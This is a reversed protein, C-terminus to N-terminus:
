LMHGSDEEEEEERKEHSKRCKARLFFVFFMFICGLVFGSSFYVTDKLSVHWNWRDYGFVDSGSSLSTANSANM